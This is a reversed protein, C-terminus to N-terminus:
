ISKVLHGGDVVLNAGSIFSGADSALLLLAGNLEDLTGPRQMPLTDFYARGAESDFFDSDLDTRFYGPSLANVRIGKRSLELALSRTMQILGAKSTAYAANGIGVGVGYVSAINIIAGHKNENLLRRAVAQALMWAARLNTNLVADWSEPEIKMASKRDAIGANNVLLEITGCRENAQDLARAISDEATVDMTLPFLSGSLDACREALAQLPAERRATAIVRAGNRCLVTAFHAGLGSSAGTVLAVKGTLDFQQADSSYM